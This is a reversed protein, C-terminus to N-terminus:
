CNECPWAGRVLGSGSSVLGSGRLTRVWWCLRTSDLWVRSDPTAPPPACHCIGRSDLLNKISASSSHEELWASAIYDRHRHQCHSVIKSRRTTRLYFFWTNLMLKKVWFLLRCVRDSSDSQRFHSMRFSSEQSPLM